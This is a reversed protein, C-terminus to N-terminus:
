LRVAIAGCNPCLAAATKFESVTNCKGCRSEWRRSRRAVKPKADDAEDDGDVETTVMTSTIAGARALREMLEDSPAMMERMRERESTKMRKRRAVAPEKAPARKTAKEGYQLALDKPARKRTAKVAAIGPLELVRGVTKGVEAAKANTTTKKGASASKNPLDHNRPASKKKAPTAAAAKNAVQPKGKPTPVAAVKDRAPIAKTSRAPAATASVSKAKPAVSKRSSPASM